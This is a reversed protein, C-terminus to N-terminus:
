LVELAVSGCISAILVISGGNGFRLMQRGAAQATFLVGNTNVSLM